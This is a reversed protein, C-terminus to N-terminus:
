IGFDTGSKQMLYRPMSVSLPTPGARQRYEDDYVFRLAGTAATVRGALRDGTLVCLQDIM